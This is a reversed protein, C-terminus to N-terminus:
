LLTSEAKAVLKEMIGIVDVAVGGDIEAPVHDFPAALEKTTAIDVGVVVIIDAEEIVVGDGAKVWFNFVFGVKVGKFFVTEEVLDSSLRELLGYELNPNGDIGAGEEALIQGIGLIEILEVDPLFAWIFFMAIQVPWYFLWSTPWSPCRGVSYSDPPWCM